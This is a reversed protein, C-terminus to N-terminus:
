RGDRADRGPRRYRRRRRGAPGAGRGQERHDSLRRRDERRGADRPELGASIVLDGAKVDEARASAAFLTIALAAFAFIAPSYNM